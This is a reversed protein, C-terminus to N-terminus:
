KLKLQLLRQVQKKVHRSLSQNRRLYLWKHHLHQHWLYQLSYALQHLQRLRHREPLQGLRLTQRLLLHLRQHLKKSILLIRANRLGNM